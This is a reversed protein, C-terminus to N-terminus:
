AAGGQAKAIALQASNLEGVFRMMRQTWDSSGDNSIDRVLTGDKLHEMFTNCATLLGACNENLKEIQRNAAALEIQLEQVTKATPAASDNTTKM